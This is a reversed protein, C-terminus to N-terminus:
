ARSRFREERKRRFTSEPQQAVVALDLESIVVASLWCTAQAIGGVVPKGRIAEPDAVLDITGGRTQIHLACFELNTSPNILTNVQLIRGGCLAQATPEGSEGSQWEPQFVEVPTASRGEVSHYVGDSIFCRLEKEVFGTVQLAVIPNRLLADGVLDFNPVSAAFPTEGSYPNAEDSPNLWAYLCGHMPSEGNVLTQTVQARLRGQGRFHIGCGCLKLNSDGHIWLEVGNGTTWLMYHGNKGSFRPNEDLNVVGHVFQLFEEANTFGFGIDTLHSM